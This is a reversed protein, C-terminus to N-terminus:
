LLEDLDNPKFDLVEPENPSVSRSRAVISMTVWRFFSKIQRADSAGYIRADPDALFKRLVVADADEGVGLAFRQAKRGRESKHLRDLSAEWDDNPLGDSILVITPIYARSPVKTKDEILERALELAGGLPTMGKAELPIFSSETAPALETHVKAEKGFTIVSVHIEARGEPQDAFSAIMDSLALNLADIKGNVSMSGSTDALIIVPLPKAASVTFETLKTMSAKEITKFDLIDPAKSVHGQVHQQKVSQHSGAVTAIAKRQTRDMRVESKADRWYRSVNDEQYKAWGM